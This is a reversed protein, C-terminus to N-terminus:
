TSVHGTPKEQKIAINNLFILQPRSEGLSISQGFQFTVCCHFLDALCISNQATMAITM